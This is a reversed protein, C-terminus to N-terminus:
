AADIYLKVILEIVSRYRISTKTKKNKKNQKNKTKTKKKNESLFQKDKWFVQTKELFQHPEHQTNEKCISKNTTNQLDNNIKKYRKNKTM